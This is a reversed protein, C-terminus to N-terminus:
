GKVASEYIKIDEESSCLQIIIFLGKKDLKFNEKLEDLNKFLKKEPDGVYRYVIQGEIIESDIGYTPRNAENVISAKNEILKLRKKFLM